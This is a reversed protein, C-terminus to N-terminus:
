LLQNEAISAEGNSKCFEQINLLKNKNCASKIVSTCIVWIRLGFAEFVEHFYQSSLYNRHEKRKLDKCLKKKMHIKLSCQSSERM